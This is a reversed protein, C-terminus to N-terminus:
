VRQRRFRSFDPSGPVYQFHRLRGIVRVLNPITPARDAQFDHHRSQVPRRLEIRVNSLHPGFRPLPRYFPSASVPASSVM